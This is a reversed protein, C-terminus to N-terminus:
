HQKRARPGHVCELQQERLHEPMHEYVQEFMSELSPPPTQEAREVAQKLEEALKAEIAAQGADDLVGQRELYRRLRQIPDRLAGAEEEKPDRYAKPDDSTTHPGKRYTLLEVLTPGDGNAARAVAKQTTAYVALADNGDCRLAPIGYAIGKAAFTESATQLETPVSIAWGNNRLLFM